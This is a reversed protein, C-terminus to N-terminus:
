WLWLTPSRNGVVTVSASPLILRLGAKSPFILNWPGRTAQVRTELAPLPDCYVRSDRESGSRFTTDDSEPHSFRDNSADNQIM